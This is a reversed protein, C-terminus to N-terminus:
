FRVGFGLNAGYQTTPFGPGWNAERIEAEARTFFHDFHYEVGVGANVLAVTDRNTSSASIIRNAEDYIKFEGDIKYHTLGLGARGYLLVDGFQRGLRASVSASFQERLKLTMAETPHSTYLWASNISSRLDSRVRGEIGLLFPGSTFNFGGFVGASPANLEFEDDPVFERRMFGGSSGNAVIDFGGYWGTLDHAHTTAPWALMLAVFVRKM